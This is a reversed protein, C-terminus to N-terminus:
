FSFVVSLNLNLACMQACVCWVCASWLFRNRACLREYGAISGRSVTRLLSPSTYQWSVAASDGSFVFADFMGSCLCTIVMGGTKPSGAPTRRRPGRKRWSLCFGSRSRALVTWSITGRSSCCFVLSTLIWKERQSLDTLLIWSNWWESGQLIMCLLCRVEVYSGNTCAETFISPLAPNSCVELDDKSCEDRELLNNLYLASTSVLSSISFIIGTSTLPRNLACVPCRVCGIGM